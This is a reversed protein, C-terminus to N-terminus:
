HDVQETNDNDNKISSDLHTYSVPQGYIGKVATNTKSIDYNKDELPSTGIYASDRICM